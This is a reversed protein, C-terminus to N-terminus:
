GIVKPRFALAAANAAGIQADPLLHSYTDVTTQISEHGLRAQVVHIPVGNGLLWSAHSHRLDHIRPRPSLHQVAPLWYRSWFTRHPIMNGRKTTFVYESGAKGECAAAIEDHIEPPLVITRRSKATKPKGVERNNDPSWKLAQHFSVHPLRVNVVPLAVAEGWRCGTGWLFRLLPRFHPDMAEEVSTFEDPTLIRMEDGRSPRGAPLKAGRAINKSIHGQDVARDLVAALLGRQNELSKHSYSPALDILALNIQDKTLRHARIDGIRPGWTRGWLREYSLRTGDTVNPLHRIHDAALDDLIPVAKDQEDEYLMNLAGQPGLADLWASFQEAGRKSDFTESAQKPRGTKASVGYRFRVKYRGSQLKEVTRM